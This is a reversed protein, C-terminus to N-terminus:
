LDKWNIQIIDAIEDFTLRCKHHNEEYGDDNLGALSTNDGFLNGCDTKLGSLKQVLPSATENGGDDWPKAEQGVVECLVGLCCYGGESDKLYGMEGQKYKGSRLANVWKMAISKKM